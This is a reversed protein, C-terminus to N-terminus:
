DFFFSQENPRHLKNMAYTCQVKVEKGFLDISTRAFDKLMQPKCGLCLRKASSYCLSHSIGPM